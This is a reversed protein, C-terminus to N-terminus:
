VNWLYIWFNELGFSVKVGAIICVDSMCADVGGDVVLGRQM